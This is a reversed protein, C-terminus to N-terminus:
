EGEWILRSFYVLKGDVWRCIRMKTLYEESVEQPNDRAWGSQELFEKLDGYVFLARKARITQEQDWFPISIGFEQELIQQYRKEDWNENRGNM